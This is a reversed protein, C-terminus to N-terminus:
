TATKAVRTTTTGEDTWEAKLEVSGADRGRYAHIVANAVAESVATRVRELDVGEGMLYQTLAQRAGFVSKREAPLVLQFPPSFDM